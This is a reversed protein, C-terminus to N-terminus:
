SQAAATALQQSKFQNLAELTEAGYVLAPGGGMMVAVGITELIEERTAGARVADHVHYAVCGDCHAGISMAISILEKTKTDLAGESLSDTHLRFFSSITAPLETRLQAFLENLHAHHAPFDAIQPM